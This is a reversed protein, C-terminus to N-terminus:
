TRRQQRRISKVKLADLIAALARENEAAYRMPRDLTRTLAALEHQDAYIYLQGMKQAVARYSGEIDQLRRILETLVEDGATYPGALAALKPNTPTVNAIPDM